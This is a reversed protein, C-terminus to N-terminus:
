ITDIIKAPIIKKWMEYIKDYESSDNGNVATEFANAYENQMEATINNSKMLEAYSGLPLKYDISSKKIREMLVPNKENFSYLVRYSVPYVTYPGKSIDSKVYFVEAVTEGDKIALKPLLMIQGLPIYSKIVINANIEEMLNKLDMM